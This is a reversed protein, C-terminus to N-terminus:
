NNTLYYLLNKECLDELHSNGWRRSEWDLRDPRFKFNEAKFPLLRSRVMVGNESIELAGGCKFCFQNRLSRLAWGHYRVKCEPCSGVLM